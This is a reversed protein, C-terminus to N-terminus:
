LNRQLELVNIEDTRDKHTHLLVHNLRKQTMTSRLYSKLRRLTSFSREATASTMPITLYIRLLQDLQSLFTKSFDNANMLQNVTGISTVKQIGLQQQDNMSQRWCTRYCPSSHQWGIWKCAMRTCLASLQLLSWKFQMVLISWCIKWKRFFQSHNNSFGKMWNVWSWIDWRLINSEFTIKQQKFNTCVAVVTLGEHCKDIGLCCQLNHWIRQRKWLQRTFVLFTQM